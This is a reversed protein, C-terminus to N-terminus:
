RGHPHFHIACIRAIEGVRDGTGQAAENIQDHVTVERSMQEILTVREPRRLPPSRKTTSTSTEGRPIAFYM